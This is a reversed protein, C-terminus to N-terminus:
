KDSLQIDDLFVDEGDCEPSSSQRLRVTGAGHNEFRIIVAQKRFGSLDASERSWEGASLREYVTKQNVPSKVTIKLLSDTWAGDQQSYEASHRLFRLKIRNWDPLSVKKEIWSSKEGAWNCAPISVVGKRGFSDAQWSAEAGWNQSCGARWGDLGNDLSWQTRTDAEERSVDKGQAKFQLDQRPASELADGSKLTVAFIESFPRDSLWSDTVLIDKLLAAPKPNTFTMHFISCDKRLPNNGLSRIKAGAKSWEGEPLHFWDWFVPVSLPCYSGDLYAFVVTIVAYYYNDGYLRLYADHEYSNGFNGGALFHVEEIKVGPRIPLLFMNNGELDLRGYDTWMDAGRVLFDIGNYALYKSTFKNAGAAPASFNDRNNKTLFYFSGKKEWDIGAYSAPPASIFSLLAFLISCRRMFLM